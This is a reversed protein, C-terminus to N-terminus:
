FGRCFNLVYVGTSGAAELKETSVRHQIDRFYFLIKANEALFRWNVVKPLKTRFKWEIGFRPPASRFLSRSQAIKPLIEM